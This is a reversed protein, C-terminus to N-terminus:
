APRRTALLAKRALTTIARAVAESGDHDPHHRQMATRYAREVGQPHLGSGLELPNLAL